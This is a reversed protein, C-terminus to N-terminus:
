RRRRPRRQADEEETIQRVYKDPPRKVVDIRPITFQLPFGSRAEPGTNRGPTKPDVRYGDEHLRNSLQDVPAYNEGSVGKLVIKAVPKEKSGPNRDPVEAVLSTLRVRNQDPDPFCDTLDYFVDLWIISRDQWESLAQIRKAEEELVLLEKDLGINDAQQTTVQRSLSSLQAAAMGVLVLVVAVAAGVGVLIRRRNSDEVPRPEKPHVLNSPLGQRSAKLHMLGVLGAFGGRQEVVPLHLDQSGAFPDLHHIPLELTERLRERLGAVEAGGAVYITRVPQGPSQGAQIALNRRVEAALNPGLPLSRALLLHGNSTICFEAWGATAVLIAAPSGPPEPPPTLVTTGAVRDLCAAIGFPRPLIGALTLGAAQCIHRFSSILERRAILVFARRDNRGPIDGLPVYDIVVEEQPHTLEKVAQFRVVAAEEREPVVPYRIDKIIVRDRGFCALVPAPSIHAERLRERLRQGAAAIDGSLFAGPEHWLAARQWTM